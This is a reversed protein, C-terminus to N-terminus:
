NNKIAEMSMTQKDIGSKSTPGEKGFKVNIGTVGDIKM